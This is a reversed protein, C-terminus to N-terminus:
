YYEERQFLLIPLASIAKKKKIRPCTKSQKTVLFKILEDASRRDLCLVQLSLVFSSFNVLKLSLFLHPYCPTRGCSLSHPGHDNMIGRERM